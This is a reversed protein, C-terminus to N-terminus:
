VNNNIFVIDIVENGNQSKDRKMDRKCNKGESRM